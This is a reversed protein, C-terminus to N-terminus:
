KISLPRIELSIWRKEFLVLDSLQEKSKDTRIIAKDCFNNKDPNPILLMTEVSISKEEIEFNTTDSSQYPLYHNQLKHIALWISEWTSWYCNRDKGASFQQVKLQLGLTFFLYEIYYLVWLWEIAVNEWVKVAGVLTTKWRLLKYSAIWWAILKNNQLLSSFYIDKWSRIQETFLSVLDYVKANFKKIIEKKYLTYFVIIDEVTAKKISWTYMNQNSEITTIMKQLQKYKNKGFINKITTTDDIEMFRAIKRYQIVTM